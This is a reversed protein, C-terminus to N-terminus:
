LVRIPKYETFRAGGWLFEIEGQPRADSVIRPIFAAVCEGSNRRVSDYWLGPCRATHLELGLKRSIAYDDKDYIASSVDSSRAIRVDSLEAVTRMTVHMKRPQIGPPAATDQYPNSLWYAVEAAATDLDFAAYLVGFRGDSFRSANPYAFPALVYERHDGVYDDEPPM